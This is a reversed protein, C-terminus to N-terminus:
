AGWIDICVSRYGYADKNEYDYIDVECVSKYVHISTHEHACIEREVHIEINM